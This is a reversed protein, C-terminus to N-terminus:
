PVVRLAPVRLSRQALSLAPEQEAQLQRIRRETLQIARAVSGVTHGEGRALHVFLRFCRRDSPLLGLVAGAVRLLLGLPPDQLKRAESVPAGGALRHVEFPDVKGIAPAFAARRYGLVDRHSSWPSALPCDGKPLPARHAWAVAAALEGVPIPTRVPAIWQVAIRGPVQRTTALKLSKILRSAESGTVIRLEDAGLGFALVDVGTRRGAQTVRVLLDYRAAPPLPGPSFGLIIREM